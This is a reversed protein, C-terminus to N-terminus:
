KQGETPESPAETSPSLARLIAPRDVEHFLPHGGWAHITADAGWGCNVCANRHVWCWDLTTRKRCPHQPGGMGKERAQFGCQRSM